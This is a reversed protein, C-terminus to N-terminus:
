SKLLLLLMYWLVVQLINAPEKTKKCVQQQTQLSHPKPWTYCERWPWLANWAPELTKVRDPGLEKQTGFALPLNSGWYFIWNGQEFGVLCKKQFSLALNVTM